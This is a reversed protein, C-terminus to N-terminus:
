PLRPIRPATKLIPLPSGNISGYYHLPDVEGRVIPLGPKVNRYPSHGSSALDNITKSMDTYSTVHHASSRATRSRSLPRAKNTHINAHRPDYGRREFEKNVEEWSTFEYVRADGPFRVQFTARISASGFSPTRPPQAKGDPSTQPRSGAVASGVRSRAASLPTALRSPVAQESPPGKPFPGHLKWPSLRKTRMLEPTQPLSKTALMDATWKGTQGACTHTCEALRACCRATVACAAQSGPRAGLGIEGGVHMSPAPECSLARCNRAHRVQEWEQQRGHNPVVVMQGDPGMVWNWMNSSVMEGEADAAPRGHMMHGRM